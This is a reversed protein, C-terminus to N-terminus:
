LPFYFVTYDTVQGFGLREALASSAMNGAMCSWHPQMDNELCHRIFASGVQFGFGRRHYVEVTEIDIVQLDETAFGSLCVSVLRSDQVAGFGFGRALFTDLDKWFLDIKKHALSIDDCPPSEFFPADMKHLIAKAPESFTTPTKHLRYVLIKERQLRRRSFARAIAGDWEPTCGSVEFWDLGAKGARLAIADHVFRDLGDIVDHRNADGALYFGEMGQSWILAVQPSDITDAYVWGPATGNAICSAEVSLAPDDLLPLVRHFDGHTLEIM